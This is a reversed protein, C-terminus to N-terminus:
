RGALFEELVGKEVANGALLPRLPITCASFLGKQFWIEFDTRKPMGILNPKAPRMNRAINAGQPDIVYMQLGHNEVADQLTAAIHEDRFSFGIITIRTDGRTVCQTFEDHYRRLVPMANIAEAKGGGLVMIDADGALKWNTSGHLKYYPQATPASRIKVWKTTLPDIKLRRCCTM